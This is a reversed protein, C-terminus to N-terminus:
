VKFVGWSFGKVVSIVSGVNVESLVKGNDLKINKDKGLVRCKYLYARVLNQILHAAEDESMDCDSDDDSCDEIEEMNTDSARAPSQAKSRSFVKWPKKM